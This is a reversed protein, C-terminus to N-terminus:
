FRLWHPPGIGMEFKPKDLCNVCEACDEALCPDCKKWWAKRKWAERKKTGEGNGNSTGSNTSSPVPKRKRAKRKKIGEGNGISMGSNACPIDPGTGVKFKPKDLCNVFEACDKALCPDCKKCQAKKKKTGEGNGDSTGSDASSPM